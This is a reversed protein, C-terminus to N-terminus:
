RQCSPTWCRYAASVQRFRRWLRTSRSFQMARMGCGVSETKRCVDTFCCTWDQPLPEPLARWDPETELVKLMVESTRTGDFARRNALLEYLLCGFGWVDTQRDIELGRIM